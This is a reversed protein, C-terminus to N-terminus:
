PKVQALSLGSAADSSVMLVAPVLVLATGGSGVVTVVFTVRLLVSGSLEQVSSPSPLSSRTAGCAAILLGLVAAMFRQASTTRVRASDADRLPADM